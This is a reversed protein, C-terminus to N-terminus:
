DLTLGEIGDVPLSFVVGGQEGELPVNQAIAEM